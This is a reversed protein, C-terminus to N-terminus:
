SAAEALSARSSIKPPISYERQVDRPSYMVKAACTSVFMGIKWFLLTVGAPLYVSLSVYDDVFRSVLIHDLNKIRMMSCIKSWNEDRWILDLWVMVDRRVLTVDCCHGARHQQIENRRLNDRRTIAYSNNRWPVKKNSLKDFHYLAIHQQDQKTRTNDLLFFFFMSAVHIYVNLIISYAALIQFTIYLEAMIPSPGVNFLLCKGNKNNARHVTNFQIM